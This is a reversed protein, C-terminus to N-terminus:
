TALQQSQSLEALKSKVGTELIPYYKARKSYKIM